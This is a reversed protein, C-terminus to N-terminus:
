ESLLEDMYDVEREKLASQSVDQLESDMILKLYTDGEPMNACSVVLQATVQSSGRHWWLGYQGHENAILQHLLAPLFGAVGAIDNSAIRVHDGTSEFAPSPSQGWSMEASRENICREISDQDMEQELVSLALNELNAFWKYRASAVVAPDTDSPLISAMTFNFYRGVRDVSPITVGAVAQEGCIGAGLVFCWAPCNLYFAMWGEPDRERCALMGTQLWEHWPNIFDQPLRKQIFDGYAPLKGYFGLEIVPANLKAASDDMEVAPMPSAETLEGKDDFIDSADTEAADIEATLADTEDSEEFINDADRIPVFTKESAEASVM